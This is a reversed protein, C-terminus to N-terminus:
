FLVVWELERLLEMDNLSLKDNPKFKYNYLTTIRTDAHYHGLFKFQLRTEQQFYPVQLYSFHWRNCMFNKQAWRLHTSQTTCNIIKTKWSFTASTSPSNRWSFMVISKAPTLSLHKRKWKMLSRHLLTTSSTKELPKLLIQIVLDRRPSTTIAPWHYWVGISTTTTFASALNTAKFASSSSQSWINRCSKEDIVSDNLIM